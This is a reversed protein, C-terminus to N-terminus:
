TTRAIVRDVKILKPSSSYRSQHLLWLRFPRNTTSIYLRGLSYHLLRLCVSLTISDFVHYDIVSSSTIALVVDVDFMLFFNSYRTASTNSFICKCMNSVNIEDYAERCLSAFLERFKQYTQRTTIIQNLLNPANNYKGSNNCYSFTIYRHINNALSM